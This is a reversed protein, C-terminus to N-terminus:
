ELKFIKSNMDFCNWHFVFSLKINICETVRHAHARLCFESVKKVTHKLDQKKLQPKWVEELKKRVSLSYNDVLQGNDKYMCRVCSYLHVHRPYLRCFKSINLLM